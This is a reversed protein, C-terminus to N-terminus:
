VVRRYRIEEAIEVARHGVQAMEKHFFAVKREIRCVVIRIVWIAHLRETEGVKLLRVPWYICGFFPAFGSLCLTRLIASRPSRIHLSDNSSWATTPILRGVRNDVQVVRCVEIIQFRGSVLWAMDRRAQVGM